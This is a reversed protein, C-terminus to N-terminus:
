MTMIVRELAKIMQRMLKCRGDADMRLKEIATSNSGRATAKDADGEVISAGCYTGDFSLIGV